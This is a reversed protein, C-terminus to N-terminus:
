DNQLVKKGGMFKEATIHGDQTISVSNFVKKITM